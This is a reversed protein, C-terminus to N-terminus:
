WRSARHVAQSHVLPDVRRNPPVDASRWTALMHAARPMSSAATWSISNVSPTAVPGATGHAVRASAVNTNADVRETQISGATPAWTVANGGSIVDFIWADTTLTQIDTAFVTGDATHSGTAWNEPPEQAAGTVSIAACRAGAFQGAAGGMNASFTVGVTRSGAAPLQAELMYFLAAFAHADTESALLESDLKTMAVANYTVSIPLVDLGNNNCEGGITVVVLRDAGSGLTHSFSTTSAGSAPGNAGIASDLAISM